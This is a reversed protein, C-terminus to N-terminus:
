VEAYFIRQLLATDRLCRFLSYHKEWKRLRRKYRLRAARIALRTCCTTRLLTAIILNRQFRSPLAVWCLEKRPREAGLDLGKGNWIGNKFTFTIKAYVTGRHLITGSKLNLLCVADRKWVKLNLVGKFYQFSDATLHTQEFYKSLCKFTSLLCNQRGKEISWSSFDRYRKM